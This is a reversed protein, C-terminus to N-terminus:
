KEEQVRAGPIGSTTPAGFLTEKKLKWWESVREVVATPSDLAPRVDLSFVPNGASDDPLAYYDIVYRHTTFAQNSSAATYSSSPSAPAPRHVVWDHRDFPRVFSIPIPPDSPMTRFILYSYVFEYRSPWITGLFLHYRAKPSLDQPRGQFQALSSRDGGYHKEEWQRVQQWAAENLWNHIHVMMEVSEEPTEWGKRVLANYFQQPSPYEWQDVKTPAAKDDSQAAGSGSAVPCASPGANTGARPINSLTRELPLHIKQGQAPAQALTPINNLPNLSDSQTKPPISSPTSGEHMPCGAPPLPSPSSSPAAPRSQEAGM